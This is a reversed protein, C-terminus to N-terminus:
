IKQHSNQRVQPHVLELVMGIIKIKNVLLFM